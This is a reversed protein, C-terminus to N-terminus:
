NSNIIKGSGSINSTISPSGIYYIDGSGEIGVKLNNECNIECDGSGIINVNCDETSFQFGYFNGSGENRLTLGDASGEMSINGTGSNYVKFNDNNEVNLILVNGIGNNKISNIRPVVINAWLNIEKYNHGELYLRLENDIVITKVKQIINDNAIIEVSQSDGQTIIVEFIGESSVETFNSVDRLETTLNGSGIITDKSCSSILIVLLVMPLYIISKMRSAKKIIQNKQNIAPIWQFNIPFWQDNKEKLYVKNQKTESYVYKTKINNNKM